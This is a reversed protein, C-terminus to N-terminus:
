SYYWFSTESAIADYSSFIVYCLDKFFFLKLSTWHEIFHHIHLILIFNSYNGLSQPWMQGQSPRWHIFIFTQQVVYPTFVNSCYRHDHFTILLKDKNAWEILTSYCQEYRNNREWNVTCVSKDTVCMLWVIIQLTLLIAVHWKINVLCEFCKLRCSASLALCCKSNTFM